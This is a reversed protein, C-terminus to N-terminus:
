LLCQHRYKLPSIGFKKSFKLSFYNSDSFGCQEAVDAIRLHKEKLMEAAHNLRLSLLFNIPSTGTAARFQRTLNRPSTCAMAALEELTFNRAFDREMLIIIHDIKPLVAKRDVPNADYMQSVTVMINILQTIAVIERYDNKQWFVEYLTMLMDQLKLLQTWNLHLKHKFNRTTRAQPELWFVMKYGPMRYLYKWPLPLMAPDFLLNILRLRDNKKFFHCTNGMLVFLDGSSVPYDRGDINQIGTGATILILESFKHYHNVFTYNEWDHPSCQGEVPVVSLHFGRIPFFEEGSLNIATKKM